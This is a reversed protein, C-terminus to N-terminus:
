DSSGLAQRLASILAEDQEPFVTRLDVWVAGDRVYGVVATKHERLRALVLNPQSTELRLALSDCEVEPMTGGGFRAKSSAFTVRKDKLSALLRQGRAQLEAVEL